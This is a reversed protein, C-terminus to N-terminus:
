AAIWVIASRGSRTPRRQRSDRILGVKALENVRPCVSQVPWGTTITLEDITAGRSGEAQLLELVKARRSGARPTISRAAQRSTDTGNHPPGTDRSRRPQAPSPPSDVGFKLHQQTRPDTSSNGNM